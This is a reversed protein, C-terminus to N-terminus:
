SGQITPFLYKITIPGSDLDKTGQYYVSGSNAFMLASSIDDLLGTYDSFAQPHLHILARPAASEVRIEFFSDTSEIRGDGIDKQRLSLMVKDKVEMELFSGSREKAPILSLLPKLERSLGKPSFKASVVWPGVDGYVSDFDETQDNVGTTFVKIDKNSLVLSFGQRQLTVMENGTTNLGGYLTDLIYKSIKVDFDPPCDINTEIKGLSFSDDAMAQLKGNKDAKLHVPMLEAKKKYYSQPISLYKTIAVLLSLPLEFGEMSQPPIHDFIPAAAAVKLSSAFKGDRVELASRDGTWGLTVTKGSFALGMLVGPTFTYPVSQQDWDDVKQPQATIYASDTSMIMQFKPDFAFTVVPHRRVSQTSFASFTKLISKLEQTELTLRPM